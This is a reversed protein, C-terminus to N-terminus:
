YMELTEEVRVELTGSAECFAVSSTIPVRGLRGYLRLAVSTDLLLGAVSLRM